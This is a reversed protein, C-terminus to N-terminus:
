ATLALFVDVNKAFRDKAKALSWATEGRERTKTLPFAGKLKKGNM